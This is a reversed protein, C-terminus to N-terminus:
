ELRALHFQSLLALSLSTFWCLRSLSYDVALNRITSVNGVKTKGLSVTIAAGFEPNYVLVVKFAFLRSSFEKHYLM